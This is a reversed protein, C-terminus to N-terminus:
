RALRSRLFICFRACFIGLSAGFVDIYFDKVSAQRGDVYSQHIEDSAAYLAVLLLPFGVLFILNSFRNTRHFAIAVLFALVIYEVLHFAISFIISSGLNLPNQISSLVFIIIAWILILAYLFM